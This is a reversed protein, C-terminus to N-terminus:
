NQNESQPQVEDRNVFLLPKLSIGDATDEDANINNNINVRYSDRLHLQLLTAITLVVAANQAFSATPSFTM